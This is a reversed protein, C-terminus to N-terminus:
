RPTQPSLLGKADAGALGELHVKAMATEAASLPKGTQASLAEAVKKLALAIKDDVTTATSGAIGDM